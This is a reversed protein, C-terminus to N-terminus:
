CLTTDLDCNNSQFARTCLIKAASYVTNLDMDYISDYHNYNIQHDASGADLRYCLLLTQDFDSDIGNGAYCDGSETFIAINVKYLQSVCKLTESGGWCQQHKLDNLIARCEIDMDGINKSAKEYVRGQLEHKFTEFNSTIHECVDHRLKKTCQLHEESTVDHYFLQHALASFLCEGNPVTKIVEVTASGGDLHFMVSETTNNHLAVSRYVIAMQNTIQCYIQRLEKDTNAITEDISYEIDDATECIEFDNLKALQLIREDDIAVDPSIQEDVPIQDANNAVNGGSVDFQSDNQENASTSTKTRKKHQKPTKLNQQHTRLHKIFNVIMWRRNNKDYYVRKAKPPPCLSCKISGNIVNEGIDVVFSQEDISLNPIGLEKFKNMAMNNLQQILENNKEKNQSSNSTPVHNTNLSLAASTIKKHHNPKKADFYKLNTNEGGEDAINKVYEVMKQILLMDGPLFEFQSPDAAFIGFYEEMIATNSDM